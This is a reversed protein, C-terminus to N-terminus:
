KFRALIAKIEAIEKEIQEKEAQKKKLRAIYVSKKVAKTTTIWITSKDAVRINEKGPRPLITPTNPDSVGWAIAISFIIIATIAKKM